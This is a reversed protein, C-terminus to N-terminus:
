SGYRALVVGGVVEAGAKDLIGRRETPGLNVVALDRVLVPTNDKMSVLTQAIDVVSEIYGLGRVLYEVKNIELTKAGTDRNSSGVAEVVQEIGVEYAKLAAPNVDIQYERIHGGASAVESVGEVASLGLKVYYDQVTRLEHLDWGGTVNGDPDRGEITYWFIQGLGTADPGLTPQAGEPLLGAPLANLKELIRSRSWYFEVDEDFIVYISSFGFM